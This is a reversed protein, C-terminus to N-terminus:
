ADEWESDSSPPYFASRPTVSRGESGQDGGHGNTGWMESSLHAGRMGVDEEDEVSGDRGGNFPRMPIKGTAADREGSEAGREVSGAGREGLREVDERYMHFALILVGCVISADAVNFIAFSGIHVFDTVWGIRLRDILNGLAGGLQLGLSLFLWWKERPLRPFYWLIGFSVVIAVIIFFWGGSPFIGFAAGSNKTHTFAFLELIPTGAWPRWSEGIELWEIIRAKSWQDVVLVIIAVVILLWRYGHREISNEANM